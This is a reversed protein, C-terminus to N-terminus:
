VVDAFGREVKSFYALGGALFLVASAASIGIQAWPAAIHGLVAWRFGEVVGVMPNIASLTRWPSPLLTSSYAIPTAFLWLQVTFPIAYRVDRYRVNIASLASTVGLVAVIEILLLMPVAVIALPPHRGDVFVIVLLVVFSSAFDLLGVGIVGCPLFIRPFYIKSVLQSYNVLSDSGVQLTNAFLTWPVLGALSFLAYPVGESSVHALNGFFITFVVMIAVPQIIAWAAGLLTQRYRITIDRVVFQLALDRYRWLERPALMRSFGRSPALRVTQTAQPSKRTPPEIAEQEALETV